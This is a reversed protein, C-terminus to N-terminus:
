AIARPTFEHLLRSKGIGAEGTVLVVQPRGSNASELADDLRQREANRGVFPDARAVRVPVDARRRRRRRPPPPSIAHEPAPTPPTEVLDPAPRDSLGFGGLEPFSPVPDNRVIA